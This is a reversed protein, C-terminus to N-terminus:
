NHRHICLVHIHMYMYMYTYVQVPLKFYSQLTCYHEGNHSTTNRNWKVKLRKEQLLKSHGLTRVSLAVEVDEVLQKGSGVLLELLVEHEINGRLDIFGVEVKLRYIVYATCVM